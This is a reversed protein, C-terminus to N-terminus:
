SSLQRLDLQQRCLPQRVPGNGHVSAAGCRIVKGYDGKPLDIEAPPAFATTVAAPKAGASPRSAAPTAVATTQAALTQALPASVSPVPKGSFRTFLMNGGVTVVLLIAVMAGIFLLLGNGRFKSVSLETKM